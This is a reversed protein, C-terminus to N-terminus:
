PLPGLARAARQYDRRFNRVDSYPHEPHAANWEQAIAAWSTGARRRSNGFRFLAVKDSGTTRPPRLGLSGWAHEQALRYAHAVREPSTAPDVDLTIRGHQYTSMFPPWWQPQGTLVFWEARERQWGLAAEIGRALRGLDYRLGRQREQNREPADLLARAEDPTLVRGGLYTARFREIGRSRSARAAELEERADARALEYDSFPVQVDPSPTAM